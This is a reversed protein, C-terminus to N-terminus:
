ALKVSKLNSPVTFNVYCETLIFFIIDTGTASKTTSCNRIFIFLVEAYKINCIEFQFYPM